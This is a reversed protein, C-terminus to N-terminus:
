SRQIKFYIMILLTIVLVNISVCTVMFFRFANNELAMGVLEDTLEGM